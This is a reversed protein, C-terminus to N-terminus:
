EKKQTAGAVNTLLNLVLSIFLNGNFRRKMALVLLKANFGNSFVNPIKIKVVM